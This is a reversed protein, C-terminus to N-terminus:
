MCVASLNRGVSVAGWLLGFGSSLFLPADASSELAYRLCGSKEFLIDIREDEPEASLLTGSSDYERFAINYGCHILNKLFTLKEDTFM